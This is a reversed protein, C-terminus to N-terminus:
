RSIWAKFGSVNEQSILVEEDMPPSIDLLMRSKPYSRM